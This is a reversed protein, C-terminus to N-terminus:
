QAHHSALLRRGGGWGWVRHSARLSALAAHWRGEVDRLSQSPCHRVNWPGVRSDAPVGLESITNQLNLSRLWLVGSSSHGRVQTRHTFDFCSCDRHHTEASGRQLDACALSLDAVCLPQSLGVATRSSEGLLVSLVLVFASYGRSCYIASRHTISMCSCPILSELRSGCLRWPIVM